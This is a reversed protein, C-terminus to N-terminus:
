DAKVELENTVSKVGAVAKAKAEVSAKEADTKVNGKLTTMGDKTIVDVNKAAMSLSGDGVLAKRIDATIRVDEQSQGQDMPGDVAGNAGTTGTTGTTGNMDGAAGTTGTATTGAANNGTANNPNDRGLAPDTPNAHEDGRGNMADKGRGNDEAGNGCAGLAAVAAALLLARMSTQM